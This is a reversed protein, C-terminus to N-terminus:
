PSSSRLETIPLSLSIKRKVLADLGTRPGVWGGLCYTGPASVGPTFRGPRSVSWKAGDLAL